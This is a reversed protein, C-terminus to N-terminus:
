GVEVPVINLKDSTRCPRTIFPPTKPGYEPMKPTKMSLKIAFNAIKNRKRDFNSSKKRKQM